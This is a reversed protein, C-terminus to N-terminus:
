TQCDSGRTPSHSIRGDFSCMVSLMELYFLQKWWLFLSERQQLAVPVACLICNLPFYILFHFFVELGTVCLICSAWFARWHFLIAPPQLHRRPSINSFTKGKKNEKKCIQQQPPHSVLLPCWDLRSCGNKHYSPELCHSLM